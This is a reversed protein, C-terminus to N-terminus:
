FYLLYNMDVCTKVSLMKNNEESRIEFNRKKEQIKELM